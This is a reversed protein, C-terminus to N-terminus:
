RKTSTNQVKYRCGLKDGMWTWGKGYAEECTPSHNNSNDNPKNDDPKPTQKIDKMIISSVEKNDIMIKGDLDVTFVIDKAKDYGSPVEEESLTYTGKTLKIVHKEDKTTIWSDLEKGESDKVSLKAGVVSNNNQDVKSIEVDYPKLKDEMTITSVENGDVTIKGDKVEFSIPSAIEYGNPEEEETLTYTGSLLGKITHVENTTTWSDVEKGESDKVSLKAGVVNNGDEDVKTINVDTLLKNNFVIDNSGSTQTATYTGDNNKTVQVEIEYVTKDMQYKDKPGYTIDEYVTYTHKGEIPRVKYQITGFTIDGNSDNYVTSIVNDGEKLIFKFQGESLKGADVTKRAKLTFTPITSSTVRGYEAVAIVGKVETTQNAKNEGNVTLDVANKLGNISGACESTVFIRVNPYTSPKNLKVTLTNDEDLSIDYDTGKTLKSGQIYQGDKAVLSYVEYNSTNTLDVSLMSDLKDKISVNTLSTLQESSYMTNLNVDFQWKVERNGNALLKGTEGKKFIDPNISVTGKSSATATFGAHTDIDLTNNLEIPKSLTGNSNIYNDRDIAVTYEVEITSGAELKDKVLKWNYLGLKNLEFENGDKDTLHLDKVKGNIIDEISYTQGDVNESTKITVKFEIIKLSSSVASDENNLSISDEMTFDSRDSDKASGIAKFKVGSLDSTNEIVEKKAEVPVSPNFNVTRNAEVTAAEFVLGATNEISYSSGNGSSNAIFKDKNLSTNYTIVISSNANITTFVVNFGSDTNTITVNQNNTVDVNNVKVVIDSITTALKAETKAAGKFEMNDVIKFNTTNSGNNIKITWNASGNANDSSSSKDISAVRINTYGSTSNKESYGNSAVNNVRSNLSVKTTTGVINGTIGDLLNEKVAETLFNTKDFYIDYTVVFYKNQSVKSASINFSPLNITLTNKNEDKSTSGIKNTITYAIGDVTNTTGDEVTWVPTESTISSSTPAKDLMYVKINSLKFYNLMLKALSERTALSVNRNVANSFELLPTDNINLVIGESTGISGSWDYVMWSSKDKSTDEDYTFDQIRTKIINPNALYVSAVEGDCDVTLEKDEFPRTASASNVIELQGGTYNSNARFGNEDMKLVAEYDIKFVTGEKIDSGDAKKIQIDFLYGKNTYTKSNERTNITVNWNSNAQGNSYVESIGDLEKGYADTATIKIKSKDVTINDVLAKIADESDLYEGNTNNIDINRYKTIYDELKVYSADSRNVQVKLTYKSTENLNGVSYSKSPTEKFISIAASITKSISATAPNISYDKQSLVKASNSINMTYGAGQNQNNKINNAAEYVANDDTETIYTIPKSFEKVLNLGDFVMVLSYKSLAENTLDNGYNSPKNSMSSFAQGLCTGMNGAYYIVCEIHKSSDGNENNTVKYIGPAKPDWIVNSSSYNMTVWKNNDEDWKMWNGNTGTATLSPVEGFGMEGNILNIGLGDSSANSSTQENHCFLRTIYTYQGANIGTIVKGSSDKITSNMMTDGIILKGGFGGAFTNGPFTGTDDYQAANRPQINEFGNVDIDFRLLTKDSNSEILQEVDKSLNPVNTTATASLKFPYQSEGSTSTPFSGNGAFKSVDGTTAVLEASVNYVNDNGSVGSHTTTFFGITIDENSNRYNQYNPNINAVYTSNTYYGNNDTGTSLTTGDSLDNISKDNNYDSSFGNGISNWTGDSNKIYINDPYLNEGEYNVYNGSGPYMENSDLSIWLKAARFEPLNDTNITMQWFITDESVWYGSMYTQHPHWVYYSRSSTNSTYKASSNYEGFGVSTSMYVDGGSTSNSTNKGTGSYDNSIYSGLQQYMNAVFEMNPANFIHLRWTGAKASNKSIYENWGSNRDYSATDRTDPDVVIYAYRHTSTDKTTSRYIILSQNSSIGEFVKKLQYQLKSDDDGLKSLIDSSLDSGSISALYTFQLLSNNYTLGTGTYFTANNSVKDQSVFSNGELFSAISLYYNANGNNIVSPDFEFWYYNGYYNTNATRATTDVESFMHGYANRDALPQKAYVVPTSLSGFNATISGNASLASSSENTATITGTYSYSNEYKYDDYPLVPIYVELSSLNSTDGSLSIHAKKTLYTLGSSTTSVSGEVADEKKFEINVIVGKNTTLSIATTGDKDSTLNSSSAILEENTKDNYTVNIRLGPGSNDGYTNFITENGESIWAGIGDNSEITINKYEFDNSSNTPKVIKGDWYYTTLSGQGGQLSISYEESPTVPDQKNIKFNVTGAPDFDSTVEQGENLNPNITCTFQFEGSIDLQDSVNDFIIQLEYNDDKKFIGGHATINGSTFFTVDKGLDTDIPVLENPLDMVYTVGEQVGTGEGNAGNSTISAMRFHVTVNADKSVGNNKYKDDVSYNDNTAIVLGDGDYLTTYMMYQDKEDKDIITSLLATKTEDAQVDIKEDHTEISTDENNNTEVETEEEDAIVKYTSVSTCCMLFVLISCFIKKFNNKM